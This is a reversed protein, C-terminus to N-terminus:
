NRILVPSTSSATEPLVHTPAVLAANAARLGTPHPREWGHVVWSKPVEEEIGKCRPYKRSRSGAPM